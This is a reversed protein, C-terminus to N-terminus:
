VVIVFYELGVVIRDWLILRGEDVGLIGNRFGIVVGWVVRLVFGYCRFNCVDLDLRGEKEKKNSFKLFIFESVDVKFDVIFKEGFNEYFGWIKVNVM